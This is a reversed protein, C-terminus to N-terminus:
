VFPGAVGGEAFRRDHFTEVFFGRSDEFKKPKVLIVEPIDQPFFVRTEM